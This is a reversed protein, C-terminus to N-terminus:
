GATSTSTKKTKDPEEYTSYEKLTITEGLISSISEGTPRAKLHVAKVYKAISYDAATDAGLSAIGLSFIALNPIKVAKSDLTLERICEVMDTLIGKIAGASFPTNHAAMHESLEELSVTKIPAVRAYWKGAAKGEKRANKYIKYYIPM